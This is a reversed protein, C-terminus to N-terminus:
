YADHRLCLILVLFTKLFMPPVVPLSGGEWLRQIALTPTFRGTWAPAAGCKERRETTREARRVAASEVRSDSPAWNLVNRRRYRPRPRCRRAADAAAGMSGVGSITTTYNLRRRQTGPRAPGLPPRDDCGASEVAGDALRSGAVARPLGDSLSVSATLSPSISRGACAHFRPIRTPPQTQQSSDALYLSRTQLHLPTAVRRTKEAPWTLSHTPPDAPHDPCTSHRVPVSRSPSWM